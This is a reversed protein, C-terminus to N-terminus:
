GSLRSWGVAPGCCRPTACPRSGSLPWMIWFKDKMANRLHRALAEEMETFFLEPQQGKMEPYGAHAMTADMYNVNCKQQRKKYSWNFEKTGEAVLLKREISQSLNIVKDFDKGITDWYPKLDKNPIAERDQILFDDINPNSRM